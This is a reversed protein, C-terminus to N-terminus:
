RGGGAAALPKLSAWIEGWAMIMEDVVLGAAATEARFEAGTPEIKHDPDSYFNAGV